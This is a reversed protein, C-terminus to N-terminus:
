VTATVTSSPTVLVTAVVVTWTVQGSVGRPVQSARRLTQQAPGTKTRALLM